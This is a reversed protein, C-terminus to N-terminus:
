RHESALSMLDTVVNQRLESPGPAEAMVWADDASDLGQRCMPCTKHEPSWQGICVSCYAHACPLSTDPRRELCICCCGDADADALQSLLRSSTLAANGLQAKPLAALWAQQQALTERAQLFQRLSLARQSETEGKGNVKHCMIRVTGRWLLPSVTFSEDVFFFLHKGHEDRMKLCLANLEEVHQFVEEYPITTVEQLPAARRVLHDRARTAAQGM